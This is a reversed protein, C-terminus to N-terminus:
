KGTENTIWNIIKSSICTDLVYYGNENLHMRGEDYLGRGDKYGEPNWEDPSISVVRRSWKKDNILERYADRYEEICDMKSWTVLMSLLYKLKTQRDRREYSYRIDYSPIELVIPIIGNEMLVEIILRMNEKYYGIGMKRDSDNIGAVVFCFDPGWEIAERLSNNRFIGLYVNKSTLGSKGATRVVVPRGSAKGVLSDIVCGVTKHGEAWSDGIYAVRITDDIHKMVKLGEQKVAPTFYPKFLIILFGCIAVLLCVFLTIWKNMIGKEQLFLLFFAFLLWLAFNIRIKASIYSWM